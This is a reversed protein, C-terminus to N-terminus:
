SWTCGELAKVPWYDLSKIDDWKIGVATRSVSAITGRRKHWNVRTPRKMGSNMGKMTSAAVKPTLKVRDGPKV